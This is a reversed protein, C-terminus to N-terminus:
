VEDTIYSQNEQLRRLIDPRYQIHKVTITYSCLLTKKNVQLSLRICTSHWPFRFIYTLAHKSNPQTGASYLTHLVWCFSFLWKSMRSENEWCLANSTCCSHVSSKSLLHMGLIVLQFIFVNGYTTKCEDSIHFKRM